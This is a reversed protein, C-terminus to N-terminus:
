QEEGAEKSLVDNIISELMGLGKIIGAHLLLKNGDGPGASEFCSVALKKKQDEVEYLIALLRRRDATGIM